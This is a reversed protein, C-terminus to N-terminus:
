EPHQTFIWLQTKQRSEFHGRSNDRSKQVDKSDSNPLPARVVEQCVCEGPALHSRLGRVAERMAENRGRTRVRESRTLTLGSCRIVKLM